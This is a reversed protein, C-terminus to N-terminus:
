NPSSSVLLPLDNEIISLLVTFLCHIEANTQSEIKQTSEKDTRPPESAM